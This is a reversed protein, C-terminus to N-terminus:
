VPREARLWDLLVQIDDALPVEFAVPARTAPHVFEIRLAHLAQRDPLPADRPLVVAPGGRRKYLTDGVIHHELSALHVRLQHTRGTRPHCRLLALGDFREAVEWYTSSVRGQGPEVVAFRSPDRESRAIPGEIWGSEFRPTGYVVALYTKKVERRRFQGMLDAFAAETRALVMVGSTAADLRHVVGPRDSGQLTPLAGYRAAARESVTGGGLGRRVGGTPHAVVGAPKAIVVLADDEHVVELAGAPEEPLVVAEPQDVEVREGGAVRRGPRTCVAGDVRVHGDRLLQKLLSRSLEGSLGALAKDLREGALAPPVTLRRTEM